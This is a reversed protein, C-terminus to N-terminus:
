HSLFNEWNSCAEALAMKRCNEVINGSNQLNLWLIVNWELWHLACNKVYLHQLKVLNSLYSPFSGSLLNAAGNRVHFCSISPATTPMMPPSLFSTCTKWSQVLLLPFPPSLIELLLESTDHCCHPRTLQIELLGSLTLHFFTISLFNSRLTFYIRCISWHDLLQFEVQSLEELLM